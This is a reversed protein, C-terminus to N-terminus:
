EKCLLEARWAYEYFRLARCCEPKCVVKSAGKAKGGCADQKADPAAERSVESARWAVCLLEGRWINMFADAECGAGSRPEDKIEYPPAGSM